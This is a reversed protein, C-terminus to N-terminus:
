LRSVPPEEHMLGPGPRRRFWAMNLADKVIM